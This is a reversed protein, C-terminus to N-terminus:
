KFLYVIMIIYNKICKHYQLAVLPLFHIEGSLRWHFSIDEKRENTMNTQGLYERNVSCCIYTHIHLSSDTRIDSNETIVILNIFSANIYM